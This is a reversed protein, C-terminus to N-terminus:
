RKTTSQITLVRATTTERSAGESVYIISHDNLWRPRSELISDTDTLQCRSGDTGFMWLDSAIPDEEDNLATIKAAVVSRSDPSWAFDDYAAFAVLTDVMRSQGQPLRVLSLVSVPQGYLRGGIALFGGDPSWRMETALCGIEPEFREGTQVDVVALMWPRKM